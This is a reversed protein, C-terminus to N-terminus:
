KIIQQQVVGGLESTYYMDSYSSSIFLINSHGSPLSLKWFM